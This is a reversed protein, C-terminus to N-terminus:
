KGIGVKGIKLVLGYEKAKSVDKLTVTGNNWAYLGAKPQITGYRANYYAVLDQQYTRVSAPNNLYLDVRIGSIKEGEIFYQYDVSELNDFEVSYGVHSADEEFPRETEPAKAAALADGLKVQKWDYNPVLSLSSIRATSVSSVPADATPTATTLASDIATGTTNTEGSPRSTCAALLLLPLAFLLLHKM